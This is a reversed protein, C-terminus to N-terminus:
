DGDRSNFGLQINMAIMEASLLHDLQQLADSIQLLQSVTEPQYLSTILPAPVAELQTELRNFLTIINDAQATRGQERLLSDVSTTTGSYLHSLSAINLRINRLSRQSRWSESRKPRIKGDGLPRLIKQDRIAEVPEIMSKMMDVAAEQHSDYYSEERGASSLSDKYGHIWEDLTAQSNDAIYVSVAQSLQCRYSNNTLETLSSTFLLRELAPLGKVGISAKYLYDTSLTNPDQQQLLRNLQKGILNKKDPWFQMSFNRMLTEIPGFQIHQVEQWANMTQQFAQRTKELQAQGPQRCLATTSSALKASSLQLVRYRPLIHEEVLSQNLSQWQQETPAAHLKGAIIVLLSIGLFVPWLTNSMSNM